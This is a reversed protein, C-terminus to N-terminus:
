ISLIEDQISRSIGDITCLQPISREDAVFQEKSFVDRSM